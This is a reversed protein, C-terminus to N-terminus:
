TWMRGRFALNDGVDRPLTKTQIKRERRFNADCYHHWERVTTLFTTSLVRRLQIPESNDRQSALVGAFDYAKAALVLVIPPGHM